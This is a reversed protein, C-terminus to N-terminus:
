YRSPASCSASSAHRVQRKIERRTRTQKNTTLTNLFANTALGSQGHQRVRRACVGGSRLGGHLLHEVSADRVELREPGNRSCVVTLCLALVCLWRAKNGGRENAESCM